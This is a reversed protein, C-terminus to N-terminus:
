AGAPTAAPVVKDGHCVPCALRGSGGCQKCPVVTQKNCIPCPGLNYFTGLRVEFVEGIHAESVGQVGGNVAYVMFLKNPDQGEMTRWGRDSRKLCRGPCPVMGKDCRHGTCTITGTALCRSCAALPRGAADHTPLGPSLVARAAQLPDEGHVFYRWGAWGAILVLLLILLKKM